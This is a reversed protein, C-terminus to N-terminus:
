YINYYNNIDTNVEDLDLTKDSPFMIIEQIGGNLNNNSTRDVGLQITNNDYVKSVASGQFTTNFYGNMNGSSILCSLLRQNASDQQTILDVASLGSNVTFFLRKLSRRDNLVLLRNAEVSTNGLVCQADVISNSYSVSFITFDNGYSLESFAGSAKFMYDDVGDFEITSKGNKTLIVGNSIFKPQKLDNSQILFDNADYSGGNVQKIWGRVHSDDSGVWDGLTQTSPSYFNVGTKSNLTIEGGDFFVYRLQNDSSRRLWLVADTWNYLNRLSYVAFADNYVDTGQVIKSFLLRRDM